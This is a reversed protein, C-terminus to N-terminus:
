ATKRTNKKWESKGEVCQVVQQFHDDEYYVDHKARRRDMREEM